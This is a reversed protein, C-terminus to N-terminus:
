ARGIESYPVLDRRQITLGQHDSITVPIQMHDLADAKGHLGVPEQAPEQADIEIQGHDTFLGSSVKAKRMFQYLSWVLDEFCALEDAWLAQLDGEAACLFIEVTAIGLRDVAPVARGFVLLGCSPCGFQGRRESPLLVVIQGNATLEDAFGILAFDKQRRCLRMRPHSKEGPKLRQEM